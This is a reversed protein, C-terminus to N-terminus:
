LRGMKRRIFISGLSSAEKEFWASDYPSLQKEPILKKILLRYIYRTSSQLNILVMFPGYFCNQISHGHEHELLKQTANRCVILFIGMSGGGWHDGARFLICNGFREAKHGTLLLVAAAIVGGLNVPLGWTFSRIYFEKDTINGNPKM